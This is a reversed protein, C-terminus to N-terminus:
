EPSCADEVVGNGCGAFSCIPSCAPGGDCEEGPDLVGNGCTSQRACEVDVSRTDSCSADQPDTLTVSLTSSGVTRCTFVTKAGSSSSFSGLNPDLASWSLSKGQTALAALAFDGGSASPTVTLRRLACVSPDATNVFTIVKTNFNIPTGCVITLPVLADAGPSVQFPQSTGDCLTPGTTTVHVVYRGPTLWVAIMLSAQTSVDMVASKVVQDTVADRVEYQVSNVVMGTPFTLAVGLGGFAVGDRTSADPERRESCAIAGLLLLLSGFLTLPYMKSTVLDSETAAHRSTLGLTQSSRKLDVGTCAM